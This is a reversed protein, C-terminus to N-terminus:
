YKWRKMWTQKQTENMFTWFVVRSIKNGTEMSIIKVESANIKELEAQIIKLNESKSVLTSFWLCQKKFGESESIMNLIFSVEGGECWLESGQGGFNLITKETKGLNKLKRQTGQMAEAQSAHFPPNCITLDFYENPQIINKFINKNSPQWRLEIEEKLDDNNSLIKQANQLANKDIDSGVFHWGYEKNGIIPYVTNAGVGVDLIRIQKGLPIKGTEALVDAAYHIYDARGPIPPCLNQPPIDWYKIGYHLMLLAKNLAKVAAPNIFDISENGFKNNSIFNKLEPLKETLAQFDYKSRHKNRIHLESKVNINKM